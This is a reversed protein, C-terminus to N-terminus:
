VEDKEGGNKLKLVYSILRRDDLSASRYAEILEREELTLYYDHVEDSLSVNMDDVSAILDDIGINMATALQNLKTLTPVIPKGSRPHVGSELMCLYSNSIGSVESFDRLSLGHSRRYERILEGLKM